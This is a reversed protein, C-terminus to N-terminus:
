QGPWAASAPSTLSSVRAGSLASECRTLGSRLRERLAADEPEFQGGSDLGASVRLGEEFADRSEHWWRLRRATDRERDALQGLTTGLASESRAVARRLTRIKPQHELLAQHRELAQRRLRLADSLRGLGEYSDALGTDILAPLDDRDSLLVKGLVRAREFSAIAGTPDGVLNDAVGIYWLASAVDRPAQVDKQDEGMLDERLSLARRYAVLGARPDGSSQLAFGLEINSTSLDRRQRPANPNAALSAEDFAVALRMHDVAQSPNRGALIAGLRKHCLALSRRIEPDGPSADYVTQFLPTASEFSALARPTDGIERYQAGLTYHATALLRRFRMEDPRADLLFAATSVAARADELSPGIQDEAYATDMLSAVLNSKADLSAPFRDAIRRRLALGKRHNARSAPQDGLNATAIRGQVNGLRHYAVALEELLVPDDPADLALADLQESARTLLLARAATAGPVADLADHLEFIMSSAVRRANQFRQEALARQREARRAQWLTTSVGILLSLTLLVGAAVLTRHRVVFKRARYRRSDPGALVPLGGLLRRVDDALQEVSGYRRDPEKRLAKLVVWELEDSVDFRTGERAATRPRAPPDDCIARILDTDSGPTGAYPRRGTVLEYLLVGLAYVDSTVTMPEGRLQEPSAGDLSFARLEMRTQAEPVSGPELLKAIGFDLLKPTGDTTVLVNRAKIDRHIVLRQHAFQVAACVQRFLQLRQVLSLGATECYVDLPVGDVYEMVVYPLGEDTTGGDLLTAINPHELTALIRREDRFRRLVLESPFGRVVKIATKKEFAADAREALYVVGMGGHGLERVIRYPGIRRGAALALSSRAAAEVAEARGPHAIAATQLFSGASADAALLSLVEDRLREDGACSDAIWAPREAEPRELAGATTEKVRKWFEPTPASPM